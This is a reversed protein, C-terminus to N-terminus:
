QEQSPCLTVLCKLGLRSKWVISSYVKSINVLNFEEKRIDFRINTNEVTLLYTVLVSHM